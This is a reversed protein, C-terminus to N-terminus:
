FTGERVIGVVRQVREWEEIFEGVCTDLNESLFSVISTSADYTISRSFELARQFGSSPGPLSPDDVPRVDRLRVSTIVKMVYKLVYAYPPEISCVRCPKDTWWDVIRIKVNEYAVDNAVESPIIERMRICITPIKRAISSYPPFPPDPADPNLDIDM